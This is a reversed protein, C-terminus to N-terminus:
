SRRGKEYLAYIYWHFLLAIILLVLGSLLTFASGLASDRAVLFYHSILSGVMMYKSGGVLAPIVFEGFSPVLVLLVGTKIGSASLPLTIHRFTQWPTAGLDASAELLRINLKEVVSYIPLVMFPIYCYVMVLLVAFVNNSLNLPESILHLRLLIKNILGNHELLFFWAYIQVLFNTWFPLVLLFLLFNKWRQTYIALFYAVPYACFLCILANAIALALSRLIIRVYILQFLESYNHLTFIGFKTLSLYIVIFLPICWFLIQWVIAPLSALFPMEQLAVKKVQKM